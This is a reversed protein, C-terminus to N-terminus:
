LMEVEVKITYGQNARFWIHKGEEIKPKGMWKDLYKIIASKTISSNSPNLLFYFKKDDMLAIKIGIKSLRNCIRMFIKTM